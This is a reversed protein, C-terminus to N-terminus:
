DHGSIRLQLGDDTSLWAPHPRLSSRRGAQSPPRVTTIGSSEPVAATAPPFRHRFSSTQDYHRRPTPLTSTRTKELSSGPCRFPLAPLVAQVCRSAPLSPLRRRISSSSLRLLLMFSSARSPVGSPWPSYLAVCPFCFIMRLLAFLTKTATPRTTNSQTSYLPAISTCLRASCPLQLLSESRDRTSSCDEVKKCGRPATSRPTLLLVLVTFIVTAVIAIRM